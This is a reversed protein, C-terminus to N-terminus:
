VRKRNHSCAKTFGLMRHYFADGRWTCDTWDATDSIDNTVCPGVISFVRPGFPIITVFSYQPLFHGDTGVPKIVFM